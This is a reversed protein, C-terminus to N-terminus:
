SQRELLYIILDEGKYRLTMNNVDSVLSGGTRPSKFSFDGTNAAWGGKATGKGM